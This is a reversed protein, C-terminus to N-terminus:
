PGALYRVANACGQCCALSCWGAVFGVEAPEKTDSSGARKGGVGETQARRIAGSVNQVADLGMSLAEIMPAARCCLAEIYLLSAPPQSPVHKAKHSPDRRSVESTLSPLRSHVPLRDHGHAHQFAISANSGILMVNSLQKPDPSVRRLACHKRRGARAAALCSLRGQM